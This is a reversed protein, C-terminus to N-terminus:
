VASGDCGVSEYRTPGESLVTRCKTSGRSTENAIFLPSPHPRKEKLKKEVRKELADLRQLLEKILQEM